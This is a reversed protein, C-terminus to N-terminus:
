ALIFYLYATFGKANGVTDATLYLDEDFCIPALEANGNDDEPRCEEAVTASRTAGSGNLLDLGTASRRRLQLNYATPATGGSDPITEVRQLQYGPLRFADSAVVGSSDSVCAFSVRRTKAGPAHNNTLTATGTAM